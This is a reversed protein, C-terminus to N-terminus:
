YIAEIFEDLLADLAEELGDKWMLEKVVDQAKEEYERILDHEIHQGIMNRYGTTIAIYKGSSSRIVYGDWNWGYVGHNYAVPDKYRLLTQLDCYGLRYTHNPCFRKFDARTMSVKM